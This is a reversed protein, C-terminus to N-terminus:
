TKCSFCSFDTWEFGEELVHYALNTYAAAYYSIGVKQQLMFWTLYHFQFICGLIYANLFVMENVCSCMNLSNSM